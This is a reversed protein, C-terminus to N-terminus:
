SSVVSCDTPWPSGRSVTIHLLSDRAELAQRGSNCRILVLFILDFFITENPPGERPVILHGLGELPVILGGRQLCIINYLIRSCSLQGM